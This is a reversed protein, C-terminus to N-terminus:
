VGLEEQLQNYIDVRYLTHFGEELSPPAYTELMNDIVYPPIFKGERSMRRKKLEKMQADDKPWFHICVIHYGKGELKSLIAARKKKTLNTQDWLIDTGNEIAQAAGQNMHATAEKITKVFEIDYTTGKQNARNEIFKDTSYYFVDDATHKIVDEAFTSKGSAPLGVLIVIDPM